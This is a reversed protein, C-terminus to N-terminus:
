SIYWISFLLVGHGGRGKRNCELVKYLFWFYFWGSGSVQGFWLGLCGKKIEENSVSRELDAQQDSSLQFPFNMDLLLRPSCPHDFRDKFHSLFESKVMIPSDIWIDDVLIGRIALQSRKKNLIGYYYKSNEDGEISWKIKAKQAVELAEIKDLDQLSKM